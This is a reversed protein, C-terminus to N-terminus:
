VEIQDIAVEHLAGAYYVLLSSSFIDIVECEVEINRAIRRRVKQGVKYGSKDIMAFLQKCPYRDDTNLLKILYNKYNRLVDFEISLSKRLRAAKDPNSISYLQASHQILMYIQEIM